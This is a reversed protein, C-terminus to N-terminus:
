KGGKTSEQNPPPTPKAGGNGGDNGHFMTSYAPPIPQDATINDNIPPTPPKPKDGM